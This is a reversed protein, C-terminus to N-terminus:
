IIILTMDESDRWAKISNDQGDNVRFMGVRRYVPLSDERVSDTEELLLGRPVPDQGKKTKCKAALLAYLKDSREGDPMPGDLRANAFSQGELNVRWTQSKSSPIMDKPAPRDIEITKGIIKLYGDKVAGYPDAGSVVTRAELIQM